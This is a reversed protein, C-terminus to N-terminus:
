SSLGLIGVRIARLTEPTAGGNRAATEAVDAAQRATAQREEERAKRLELEFLNGQTATVRQSMQTLANLEKISLEVEDDEVLPLIARTALSTVLQAFVRGPADDTSRSEDALCRVAAQIQRQREIAQEYKLAYRGVASKSVKAGAAELAEVVQAQTCGRTLAANVAERIAPDREISSRPPM